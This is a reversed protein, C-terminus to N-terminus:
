AIRHEKTKDYLADTLPIGGKKLGKSGLLKEIAELKDSTITKKM